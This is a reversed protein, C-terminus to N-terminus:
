KGQNRKTLETELADTVRVGVEALQTRWHLDTPNALWRERAAERLLRTDEITIKDRHIGAWRDSDGFLVLPYQDGLTRTDVLGDVILGTSHELRCPRYIFDTM